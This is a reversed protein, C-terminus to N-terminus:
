VMPYKLDGKDDLGGALDQVLNAIDVEGSNNAAEINSYDHSNIPVYDTEGHYTWTKYGEQFDDCILHARVENEDKWLSNVYKTCPCLIKNGCISNSFAFEIFGAVRDIYVKTHRYINPVFIIHQYL